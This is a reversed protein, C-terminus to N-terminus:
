AKTGGLRERAKMFARDGALFSSLMHTALEAVSEQQSYIENYIAAYDELARHLDPSAFITLKVPTRDPLRGLKLGTM